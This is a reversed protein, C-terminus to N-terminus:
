AQLHEGPLYQDVAKKFGAESQDFNAGNLMHLIGEPRPATKVAKMDGIRTSFTLPIYKPM